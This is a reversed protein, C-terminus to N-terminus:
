RNGIDKRYVGSGCRYKCDHLYIYEICKDLSRCKVKQLHFEKRLKNDNKKGAYCPNKHYLNPSNGEWIIYWTAVDTMIFAVNKSVKYKLGYRDCLASLSKEKYGGEEATKKEALKEVPEQKREEKETTSKRVVRLKKENNRNDVLYLM